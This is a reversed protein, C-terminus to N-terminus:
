GANNQTNAVAANLQDGFDNFMETFAGSMAAAATGLIAVVAVVILAYEVTSVAKTETCFRLAASRCRSAARRVAARTHKPAFQM